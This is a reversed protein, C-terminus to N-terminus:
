RIESPKNTPMSVCVNHIARLFSTINQKLVIQWQGCVYNRLIRYWLSQSLSRSTVILIFFVEVAM